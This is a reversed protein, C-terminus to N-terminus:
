DCSSVRYDYRKRKPDFTQQYEAARYVATLYDSPPYNLVVREYNPTSTDTRVVCFLDCRERSVISTFMKYISFFVRLSLRPYAGLLTWDYCEAVSKRLAEIRERRERALNDSFANLESITDFERTVWRGPRVEYRLSWTDWTATSM